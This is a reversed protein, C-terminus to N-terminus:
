PMGWLSPPLRPSQQVKTKVDKHWHLLLRRLTKLKGCHELEWGLDIHRGLRAGGVLDLDDGFIQEASAGELIPNQHM